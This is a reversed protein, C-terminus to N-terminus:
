KKLKTNGIIKNIKLWKKIQLSVNKRQESLRQNCNKIRNKYKAPNANVRFFMRNIKQQFGAKKVNICHNPIKLEKYLFDIQPYCCLGFTPIGAGIGVVNAHFRMAFMIDCLNYKTFISKAGLKDGQYEAVSVNERRIKDPLMELLIAYLKLDSYIHPFLIIKIKNNNKYIETIAQALESIFSKLSHQRKGNFREKLMDGALNLGMCPRSKAHFFNKYKAFFGGDPVIQIKNYALDPFYKKLTSMAGDNRVSVLYQSSSLLKRLFHKFKKLNDKAIGQGVDVGVANFFMPTKISSFIKNSISLSTGTPSNPVWLEFYNGGGWVVLDSENAKSAFEKDFSKEGRYINRIEFNKWKIKRRLLNQFWPRFGDHNAIDGINGKFSAIHLVKIM